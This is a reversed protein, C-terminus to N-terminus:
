TIYNRLVSNDIGCLYKKGNYEYSFQKTSEMISELNLVSLDEYYESLKEGNLNVSDKNNIDEFINPTYIGQRKNERLKSSGIKKKKFLYGDDLLKEFTKPSCIQGIINNLDRNILKNIVLYYIIDVHGYKVALSINIKKYADMSNGEKHLKKYLRIDGRCIAYLSMLKKNTFRYVMEKGNYYCGINKKLEQINPNMDVKNMLNYLEKIRNNDEEEMNIRIKSYLM